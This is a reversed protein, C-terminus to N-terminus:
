SGSIIVKGSITEENTKIEAIYYGGPLNKINMKLEQQGANLKNQVNKLVARGSLDFLTITVDSAKSLQFRINLNDSAPNPYIYLNNKEVSRNESIGTVSNYNNQALGASETIDNLDNGAILAFAVVVSDGPNLNFPGTSVVDIVDNGTTAGGATARATSLTTYKEIDDYGNFMDIGGAGGSLNDIAYHNFNGPTLLKIGAYLGASDTCWVYGMKNVADEAAKNNAFTMIDWDSFIGAYVNTLASAGGNTVTYEFIHYKTDPPTSWSYSRHKVQLGIPTPNNADNFRGYTDFDSFFGPSNKVINSTASWDNDTGTAGRVNDDVGASTGAMFGAEYTLTGGSQYDFGLGEAQAEGNYCLRGKSTNTTWVDNITINVYDVNVIISFMQFDTYTGDQFTLKFTIVANQPASQNIKVTFPDTSNNTTAMTGLVGVNTFNDIITVYPSASSLTVGLASTPALFNTIDGTIYLTDNALFVNDDNDTTNIPNMRISPSAVTLASLLNIRGTGLGNTFPTNQPLSYINDATIRVQEGVQLGTYAPFYSKVIAAVGATVPSAMSTGSMNTYQNDYVTAYINNGPACVDVYYGYNSFSAKNDNVSNTAAVALVYNFAAPYFLQNNANNGAAAVVLCNKNITAYDIVNQGFSGGGGGGWSCNIIQCGHDAAYTIGEYAKTLAGSADAIKVPLFRSNFGASAVGVGNNTVAAACGSVHSGHLCTFCAGVMPDNDGEGVDWGRYNDIFGDGDDDVGNIPDDYNLQLNAALDPHDWDTGTDTIGIVVNTDGKSVDWGDFANIRTLFPQNAQMQPDNPTFSVKPLYKPEAYVLVNTNLLSNIVKVLDVDATFKVEYILSLDSYPMGYENREAAPPQHNPFIKHLDYAGISQLMSKVSAINIEETTCSNRYDPHVRLIVTKALYDDAKLGAPMVFTHPTTTANCLSVLFLLATLVGPLKKKM